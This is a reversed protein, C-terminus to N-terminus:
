ITDYDYNLACTLCYEPDIYKMCCMDCPNDDLYVRLEELERENATLGKNKM